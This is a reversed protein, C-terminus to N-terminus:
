SEIEMVIVPVRAALRHSRAAVVCLVAHSEDRQTPSSSICACGVDGAHELRNRHSRFAPFLTPVGRLAHSCCYYNCHM